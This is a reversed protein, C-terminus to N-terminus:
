LNSGVKSLICLSLITLGSHAPLRCRFVVVIFSHVLNRTKFNLLSNKKKKKKFDGVLTQLKMLQQDSFSILIM